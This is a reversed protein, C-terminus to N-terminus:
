RNEKEDYLKEDLIQNQKFQLKEEKLKEIMKRQVDINNKLYIIKEVFKDEDFDVIFGNEGNKIQEDAGAFSSTIIPKLFFKAETLTIGFGEHRSTQVYLDCKKFYPYPNTKKGLLIIDKEIGKEKIKQKILSEYDGEGLLYWKLSINRKKLKEVIDPIIDQGKQECIRGVTLVKYDRDPMDNQINDKAKEKMEEFNIINYFVESKNKYKPLKLDFKEKALKSVCFIKNYKKFINEADQINVTIQDVENHIWTWKKNASINYAVYFLALSVPASYAIALDYAEEVKPLIRCMGICQDIYKRNRYNHILGKTIEISRGIKFNKLAKEIRKKNGCDIEPIVKVKVYSPIDEFFDGGLKEVYLTIDYKEKSFANLMNILAKEIGGAMMYKTVIAIKKM